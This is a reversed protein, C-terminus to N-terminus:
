DGYNVDHYDEYASADEEEAEISCGDCLTEWREKPKFPQGCEKCDIVYDKWAEPCGTEHCIVGNIRLLQCSTCPKFRRM